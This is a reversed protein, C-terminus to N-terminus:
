ARHKPHETSAPCGYPHYTVGSSTSVSHFNQKLSHGNWVQEMGMSTDWEQTTGGGGWGREGSDYMLRTTCGRSARSVVCLLITNFSLATLPTIVETGMCAVYTSCTNVHLRTGFAGIIGYMYVYMYHTCTCTICTCEHLAHTCAHECVDQVCVYMYM